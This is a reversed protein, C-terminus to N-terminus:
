RPRWREDCFGNALVSGDDIAIVAYDGLRPYLLANTGAFDADVFTHIANVAVYRTRQIPSPAILVPAAQAEDFPKGAIQLQDRRWSIPLEPLLRAILQNSGPDGFLVLNKSEMEDPTVETDLKIPLEGRMSRAWTRQFQELRADAWAQLKPNWPTGSGRVCLFPGTFVDDIPGQLGRVKRRDFNVEVRRSEDFDLVRPGDADVRYYVRPLLSMAADRLPFERDGIRVTQAVQRDISLLAVNDWKSLIVADDEIRADIEAREYHEVLEEVNLWAAQAYKLTFTVFRIRDPTDVRGAEAHRDRFERLIRASEPDVKHGTRAGVVRVFDIGEGRSVLGEAKMPFGLQELQQQIRESARRQPDDEGGYGAFPLNFANLAYDVADYIRLTRTPVDGLDKLRAYEVSDAFGAGAEAAAWSAPHHLGLHWAGAGGMSFGRLLIRRGDVPYNRRVADIAEFVDTEGAWRYANNGRGYVHLVLGTEGESYPKGEHSRFFRVESLKAGRGHLVVDLRLRAAAAPDWGAPVYLAYPQVAGDVKSRFGKVSGGTAPAAGRAVSLRGLRERGIEIVKLTDPVDSPDFFEGLKVISDAARLTIEVDAVRDRSRPDAHPHAKRYAELDTRLQDAAVQIRDLDAKDVPITPPKQFTPQVAAAPGGIMWFLTAAITWRARANM